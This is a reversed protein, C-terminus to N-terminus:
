KKRERYGGNEITNKFGDVHAAIIDRMFDALPKGEEAAKQKLLKLQEPTVTFKAYPKKSPM